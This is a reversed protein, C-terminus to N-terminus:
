EMPEPEIRDAVLYIRTDGFECVVGLHDIFKEEGAADYQDRETRGYMIYDIGYRDIVDVALAWDQTNYLLEIDQLRTGAIQSYTSGRWQRQHNDWGMVIPIGTLSALRAYYSRYADRVAEVAVVEDGRVRQGLCRVALYDDATLPMRPGGDLTLPPLNEPPLAHRQTEIMTRAHIAFVPYLLGLFLVGALLALFLGRAPGRLREADDLLLVYVGYAGALSLVVWAQYYFKFITNIRTSFVDRLYLFEPILTLLIAVGVLMLAFGTAPAYTIAPRELLLSRRPFLRAIVIVLLALLLLTVPLYALRRSIFGTLAAAPGGNQDISAQVVSNVGPLLLALAALGLMSLVLLLLTGGAVGAGRLLHNSGTQAGQWLERLLFPLTLLLLPGFMIFFHQFQTPYLLNPLIGAAQSRFSIIFPLYAVLAIVLLQLGFWVLKLWDGAHLAGDRLLLRRLALAGVLLTLYIPADWTNLFILGGIAIGYFLTEARDPDRPRLLIALALGICMVVFPLALVHPHVDGLIFSFAPFEDIPQAGPSLTGNLEYDTLVRSARFFWWFSWTEPRTFTFPENQQTYVDGLGAREQTGWYDFYEAPMNRSQYPLEILPFQFNGLLILFVAALLGAALPASDGRGAAAEGAPRRSRALNYVVGFATLGSLGFLLALMLSFGITSSVGSLMTLMAALIYGFHYYSISYGALWPDNPPFTDSRLIGSIFALEMPKETSWTDNQYARFLTWGLFLGLFLLEAVIIVRRNARWYDRWPVPDGRLLLLVGAALVILWALLISGPTNRLLGLSALLWFVFGTLLLGVARALTYGRDPLSGLLRLCLPLAALGALTVLLWWNLFIAGELAFWNLVNNM